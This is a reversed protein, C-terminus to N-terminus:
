DAELDQKLKKVGGWGMKKEVMGKTQVRSASLEQTFNSITHSVSLGHACVSLIFRNIIIRRQM